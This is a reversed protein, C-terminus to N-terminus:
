FFLVFGWVGSNHGLFLGVTNVMAAVALTVRHVDLDGSWSHGSQCRSWSHLAFM